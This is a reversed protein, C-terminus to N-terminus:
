VAGDKPLTPVMQASLARVKASDTNGGTLEKILAYAGDSGVGPSKFLAHGTVQDMTLRQNSDPHLMGNLLEDALGSGTSGAFSKGIPTGADTRTTDIAKNGPDYGFAILALRADANEPDSVVSRGFIMGFMTAGLSWVDNAGTDANLKSNQMAERGVAVGMKDKLTKADTDNLHPFFTKVQDEVKKRFSLETRADQSVKGYELSAKNMEPSVWRPNDPVQLGGIPANKDKTTGTGFDAIRAVGDAGIFYNQEKIDLHALGAGHLAALGKAMDQLLTLQLTRAVTPSLSGDQVAKSIAKQAGSVDGNPMMELAIGIRGDPTRVIGLLDLTQDKCGALAARHSVIEDKMTKVATELRQETGSSLTDVIPLKLVVEKGSASRYLEVVGYGGEALKKQHTYVEGGITLKKGNNEIKDPLVQSAAQNYGEVFVGKTLWGIAKHDVGRKELEGLLRKEIDFKLGNGYSEALSAGKDPMSKATELIMDGIAKSIEAYKPHDVTLKGYMPRNFFDGKDLEGAIKKALGDVKAGLGPVDSLGMGRDSATTARGALALANVAGAQVEARKDPPLMTRFKAIVVPKGAQRDTNDMVTLMAKHALKRHEKAKFSVDTFASPKSSRSYLTISGDDNRKGRLRDTDGGKATFAQLDQLTTQSNVNMSIKTM